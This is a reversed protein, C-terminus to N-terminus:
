SRGSRHLMIKARMALRRLFAVSRQKVPHTERAVELERPPTSEQAKSDVSQVANRRADEVRLDRILLEAFDRSASRRQDWLKGLAPKNTIVIEKELNAINETRYGLYFNLV